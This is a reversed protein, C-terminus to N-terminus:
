MKPTITKLKQYMEDITDKYKTSLVNRKLKSTVTLLQNEVTFPEHEVHIVKVREYGRVKSSDFLETIQKMLTNYLLDSKCVIEYTMDGLGVTKIWGHIRDKDPVLVAVPFAEDPRGVVFSQAVLPSSNIISEIYAPSIYEGQALKFLQKIRDIIKIGGNELLEVIDGTHLWGNHIAEKTLLEDKFYGPTINGGRLLLEGMPPTGNADYNLDPVSRIRYQM